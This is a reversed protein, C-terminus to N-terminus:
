IKNQLEFLEMEYMNKRSRFYVLGHILEIKCVFNILLKAFSFCFDIKKNFVGFSFFCSFFVRKTFWVVIRFEIIKRVFM